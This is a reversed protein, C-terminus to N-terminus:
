PVSHSDRQSHSGGPSSAPNGGRPIWQGGPRTQALGSVEEGGSCPFSVPNGRPLSPLYIIRNGAPLIFRGGRFAGWFMELGHSLSAPVARSEPITPSQSDPIGPQSPVHPQKAARGADLFMWFCRGPSSGQDWPHTWSQLLALDRVSIGSSPKHCLIGM